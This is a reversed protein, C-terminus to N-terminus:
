FSQGRINNAGCLQVNNTSDNLVCKAVREFREPKAFANLGIIKTMLLLNFTLSM